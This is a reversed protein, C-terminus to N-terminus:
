LFQYRKKKDIKTRKLLKLPRNGRDYDNILIRIYGMPSPCDYILDYLTDTPVSHPISECIYLYKYWTPANQDDEFPTYVCTEEKIGIYAHCKYKCKDGSYEFPTLKKRGKLPEDIGHKGYKVYYAFDNVNDANISTTRGRNKPKSIKKELVNRLDTPFLQKLWEPM